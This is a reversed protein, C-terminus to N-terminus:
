DGDDCSGEFITISPVFVATDIVVAPLSTFMPQPISSGQIPGEVQLIHAVIFPYQGGRAPVGDSLARLELTQPASWSHPDFILPLGLIQM